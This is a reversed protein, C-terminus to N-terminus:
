YKHLLYIFYTNPYTWGRTNSLSNQFLASGIELIQIREYREM